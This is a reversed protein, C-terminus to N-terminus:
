SKKKLYIEEEKKLVQNNFFFLELERDLQSLNEFLIRMRIKDNSPNLQIIKPKQTKQIEMKLNKKLSDSSVNKLIILHLYHNM